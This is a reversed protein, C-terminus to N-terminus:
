SKTPPSGGWAPWFRRLLLWALVGLATLPVLVGLATILGAIFKVFNRWANRFADLIPNDGGSVIPGKEYVTISLTSWEARTRLFRLRGEYREIQERIRALEREVTLVEELKGTRTALLAVLRDELREANQVRASIDVFEEGVDQANTNVWDVKEGIGNLGEIAHDFRDVPVKLEMTSSREQGEGGQMQSNGVFGGVRVALQRVRQVGIELSDVRVRADGTRIVMSPVVSQSSGPLSGVPGQEAPMTTPAPPSAPPASVALGSVSYADQRGDAEGKVAGGVGPRGALAQDKM